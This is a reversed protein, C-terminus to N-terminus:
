CVFEEPKLICLGWNTINYEPYYKKTIKYSDNYCVVNEINKLCKSTLSWIENINRNIGDIIYEDSKETQASIEQFIEFIDM